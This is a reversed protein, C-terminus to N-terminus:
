SVRERRNEANWEFTTGKGDNTLNGDPDHLPARVSSVSGVSSYQNLANTTYTLPQPEEPVSVQIRNGIQDFNYTSNGNRMTASTVESKSNYGFNNTLTSAFATGSDERNTRRGAADNTYAFRSLSVNSYANSVVSVLNRQAEYAVSRSFDGISYGNIM